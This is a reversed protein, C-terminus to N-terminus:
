KFPKWKGAMLCLIQDKIPFTKEGSLLDFPKNIVYFAADIEKKKNQLFGENKIENEGMWYKTNAGDFHIRHVMGDKDYSIKAEFYPKLRFTLQQQSQSEEEGDESFLSSQKYFSLQEIAEWAEQGGHAEISKQILEVAKKDQTSCSFLFLCAIYALYKM